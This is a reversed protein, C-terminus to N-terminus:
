VDCGEARAKMEAFMERVKENVERAEAAREAFLVHVAPNVKWAPARTEVVADELWGLSVLRECIQSVERATLSRVGHCGMQIERATVRDLQKTLIHRAISAMDDHGEGLGLLGVFFSMQAPQIYGQLFKAVRQTTDESILGPLAVAGANEICHFLVCLRGFLGDAKGYTSALKSSTAEFAM